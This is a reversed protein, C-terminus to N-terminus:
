SPVVRGIRAEESKKDTKAEVVVCIVVTVASATVEVETDREMTVLVVFTAGVSVTFLRKLRVVVARLTKGVYAEAHELVTLNLEAQEHDTFVSVRL